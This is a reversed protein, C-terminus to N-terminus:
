KYEEYEDYEDNEDEDRKNKEDEDEDESGIALKAEEELLYMSLKSKMIEPISIKKKKDQEENEAEEMEKKKMDFPSRPSSSLEPMTPFISKTRPQDSEEMGPEGAVKPQKPRKPGRVQKPVGPAATPTKSPDVHGQPKDRTWGQSSYGKAAPDKKIAGWGYNVKGEKGNKEGKPPKKGEETAPGERQIYVRVQSLAPGIGGLIFVILVTFVWFLL